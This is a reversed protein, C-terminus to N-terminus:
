YTGISDACIVTHDFTNLISIYFWRNNRVTWSGLRSQRVWKGTDWMTVLRLLTFHACFDLFSMFFTRQNENGTLGDDADLDAEDYEALEEDTLETKHEHESSDKKGEGGEGGVGGQQQGALLVKQALDSNNHLETRYERSKKSWSGIWRRNTGRTPLGKGTFSGHPTRLKVLRVHDGQANVVNYLNVVSYTHGMVLGKSVAKRDGALEIDTTGTTRTAAVFGQRLRKNLKDWLNVRNNIGETGTKRLADYEPSSLQLREVNGGTLDRLAYDVTGGSCAEYTGHLKAYAKEM